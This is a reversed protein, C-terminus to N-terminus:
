EMMSAMEADGTPKSESYEGGEDGGKGTAYTVEVQDDHMAVIKLVVEEGPKFEKGALISKPLMATVGEEHEKEETPAAQKEPMEADAFPDSAAENPNGGGPGPNGYPM